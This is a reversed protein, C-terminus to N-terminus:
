FLKNKANVVQDTERARSLVLQWDLEGSEELDMVLKLYISARLIKQQRLLCLTTIKDLSIEPTTEEVLSVM